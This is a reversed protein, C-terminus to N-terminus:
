RCDENRNKRQRHYMYSYVMPVIVIVLTVTLFLVFSGFVATAMIVAGGIVWIKGAFRHTKNWNEESDLTWPLKIGITYNQKCKPMYNGIILFMIGIVLPMIIEISLDYGLVSAYVFTSVLLSIVPCIWQVLTLVKGQVGKSKPDIATVFTCLWHIALIFLPMGFVVLGRSGWDDVEGETNWHVPVEYPMSDWLLLGVAMPLLIMISTVLLMWKNRKIM